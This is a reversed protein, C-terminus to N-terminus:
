SIVLSGVMSVVIRRAACVLKDEAASGSGAPLGDGDRSVITNPYATLPKGATARAYSLVFLRAILCYVYVNKVEVAVNVQWSQIGNDHYFGMPSYRALVSRCWPLRFRSLRLPRPESQLQAAVWSRGVDASVEIKRISGHGSWARDDQLLDTYESTKEGTCAPEAQLKIATLWKTSPNGECSPVFLRM